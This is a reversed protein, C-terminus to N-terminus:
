FWDSTGPGSSTRITYGGNQRKFLGQCVIRKHMETHHFRYQERLKELKFDVTIKYDLSSDKDTSNHDVSEM